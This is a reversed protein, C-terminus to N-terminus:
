ERRRSVYLLLTGGEHIGAAHDEPTIGHRGEAGSLSFVGARRLSTLEADFTVRDTALARRLDVLSALNHRGRDRDLRDFAEEFRQAFPVAPLPNASEPLPAPTPVATRNAAVDSVLFLLAKRKVRLLGVEPSLTGEAIRREVEASFLPQLPRALKKKVDSISLAQNTPTHAAALAHELLPPWSALRSADEALAVPSGADPLAAVVHTRLIKESLAELADQASAVPDAEHALDTLTVPYADGGRQRRSELTRLLRWALLTATPVVSELFLEAGSIGSLVGVGPPLENDRLRRAVAEAFLPRLEDPLRDQLRSATALPRRATTTARLLHELLRPSDALAACDESLAVPADLKGPVAWIARSHFPERATAQKIATAKAQPAADAALEALSPPYADARRRFEELSAVIRESLEEAPHKKPPPAPFAQLYLHPKGKVDRIGTSPPLRGEAIRRELAATFAPRLAADVQMALRALPHLPKEVNCLRRLAYELLLDNAALLEADEALTIPSAPDKKRARLLEQSGPKRALARETEAPSPPPDLKAALDAVTLPYLEGRLRVGRLAEILRAALEAAADTRSM